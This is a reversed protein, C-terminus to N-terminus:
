SGSYQGRKGFLHRMTDKLHQVIEAHIAASLGINPVQDLSLVRLDPDVVRQMHPIMDLMWPVKHLPNKRSVEIVQQWDHMGGQYDRPERLSCLADIAGVNMDSDSAEPNPRAEDSPHPDNWMRHHYQRRHDLLSPMVHTEFDIDERRHLAFGRIVSWEFKNGPGVLDHPREPDLTSIDLQHLYYEVNCVHRLTTELWWRVEAATPVLYETARTDM